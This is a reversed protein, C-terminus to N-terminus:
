SNALYVDFCTGCMINRAGLSRKDVVYGFSLARYNRTRIEEVLRITAWRRVADNTISWSRNVAIIITLLTYVYIYMIFQIDVYLKMEIKIIIM